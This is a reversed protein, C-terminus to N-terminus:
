PSWRTIEAGTEKATREADAETSFAAIGSGMPSQIKGGRIYFASGADVLSGPNAFDAVYFKGPAVDNEGAFTEACVADDFIYAKGNENIYEVGFKNDVLKMKCTHCDVEGYAIPKPSTNCGSAMILFLSVAVTTAALKTKRRDARWQLWVAILLLLGAGIFFYGGVDPFSWATFNALQKSGILPPQYTMGPINIPATPDLNHGYDYEWKWFDYMALVSFILFLAFTLYLFWRRNIIFVLIGMLVFFGILYPLVKFEVFDEEHILQMGIYHNLGNIIEVDGGLKNSFIQMYLGEPYQPAILDIRWIPLFIAAILILGAILGLIRSAPILKNDKM